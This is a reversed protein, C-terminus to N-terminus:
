RTLCLNVVNHSSLLDTKELPGTDLENVAPYLDGAQRRRSPAATTTHAM